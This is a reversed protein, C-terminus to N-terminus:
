LLATPAVYNLERELRDCTIKVISYIVLNNLNNTSHFSLDWLVDFIYNM